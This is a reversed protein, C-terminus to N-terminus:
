HISNLHRAAAELRQEILEADTADPVQSLYYTYDRAAAGHCELQDLVIARDRIEIADGPRLCLIHEIMTLCAEFEGTKIYIGKLNRLMRELITKKGAPELMAACRYRLDHGAQGLTSLRESLERDDVERGGAFPDLLVKRDAQGLMVLFHGPFSVGALPVGLRQGVEMYLVSLTIPIGLKREMVDNLFSNRPDYYNGFNGAFGREIFLYANMTRLVLAEDNAAALRSGVGAALEDIRELYYEVDLDPYRTRAIALAGAALDIESEPTEALRRFELDVLSNM